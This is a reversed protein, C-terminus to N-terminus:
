FLYQMFSPDILSCPLFLVVALFHFYKRQIILKESKLVGRNVLYISIFLLSFWYILMAIRRFSLNEKDYEVLWNVFWLIFHEGLVTSLSAIEMAAGAVILSFTWFLSHNLSYVFLVLITLLTSEIVVVSVVVMSSPSLFLSYIFFIFFKIFLIIESISFYYKLLPLFRFLCLDTTFSSILLLILYSSSSSSTMVYAPFILISLHRLFSSQLQKCMGWLGILIDIM